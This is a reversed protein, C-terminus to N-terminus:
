VKSVTMVRSQVLHVSVLHLFSLPSGCPNFFCVWSRPVAGPLGAARGGSWRAGHMVCCLSCPKCGQKMQVKWFAESQVPSDGCPLTLKGVSGVGEVNQVRAFPLYFSLLKVFALAKFFCFCFFKKEGIKKKTQKLFRQIHLLVWLTVIKMFSYFFVCVCVAKHWRNLLTAGKKSKTPAPSILQRSKQCHEYFM